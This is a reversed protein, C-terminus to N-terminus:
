HFGFDIELGFGAGAFFCVAQPPPLAIDASFIVVAFPLFGVALSFFIEFAYSSQIPDRYLVFEILFSDSM